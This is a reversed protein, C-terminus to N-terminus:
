GWLPIEYVPLIADKFQISARVLYLTEVELYTAGLFADAPIETINYSHYIDVAKIVDDDYRLCKEAM